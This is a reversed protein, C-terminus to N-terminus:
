GRHEAHLGQMVHWTEFLTLLQLPEFLHHRLSHNWFLMFWDWLWKLSTRFITMEDVHEIHHRLNVLLQTHRLYLLIQSKLDWLDVCISIHECHHRLTGLMQKLALSQGNTINDMYCVFTNGWSCIVIWKHIGILVPAVLLYSLNSVHQCLHLWNIDFRSARPAMFVRDPDSYTYSM